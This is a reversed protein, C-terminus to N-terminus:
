MLSGSMIQVVSLFLKSPMKQKHEADMSSINTLIYCDAGPHIGRRFTRILTVVLDSTM